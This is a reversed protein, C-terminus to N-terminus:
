RVYPGQLSRTVSLTLLGQLFYSIEPRSDPTPDWCRQMLAWLDDTFNPHTPRAPRGGQVVYSMVLISAIDSFPVADTFVQMLM